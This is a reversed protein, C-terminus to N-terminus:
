EKRAEQTNQDRKEDSTILTTESNKFTYMGGERERGGRERFTLYPSLPNLSVYIIRVLFYAHHLLLVVGVFVHVAFLAASVLLCVDFMDVNRGQYKTTM